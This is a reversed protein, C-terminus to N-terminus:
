LQQTYEPLFIFLDVTILSPGKLKVDACEKGNGADVFDCLTNAKNFAQIFTTLNEDGRIISADRYAQTLGQVNAYVRVRIKYMNNSTEEEEAKKVHNDM